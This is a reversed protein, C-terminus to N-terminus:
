PSDYIQPKNPAVNLLEPPVPGEDRQTHQETIHSGMMTDKSNATDIFVDSPNTECWFDKDSITHAGLIEEVTRSPCSLQENTEM